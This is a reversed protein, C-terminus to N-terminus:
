TVQSMNKRKTNILDKAIGKHIQAIEVALVHTISRMYMQERVYLTLNYAFKINVKKILERLRTLQNESKEYFKDEILSNCVLTYLEQEPSQNYAVGAEHNTTKTTNKQNFKM